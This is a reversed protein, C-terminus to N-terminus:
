ARKRGRKNSRTSRGARPPNAGKKGEPEDDGFAGTAAEKMAATIADGDTLMLDGLADEDIEPHHKKFGQEIFALAALMQRPDTETQIVDFLEEAPIGVQAATRALTAFNIKLTLRQGNGLIAVAEGRIPM